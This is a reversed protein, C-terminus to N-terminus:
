HCLDFTRGHRASSFPACIEPKIPPPRPPPPLPERYAFVELQIQKGSFYPLGSGYRGAVQLVMPRHILAAKLSPAGTPLQLSATVDQLLRAPRAFGGLLLGKEGQLGAAVLSEIRRVLFDNRPLDEAEPKGEELGPLMTAETAAQHAAAELSAYAFYYLAADIIFAVVALFLPLAIVAEVIVSGGCGASSRSDPM